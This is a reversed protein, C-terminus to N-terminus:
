LFPFSDVSPFATAELRRIKAQREQVVKRSRQQWGQAVSSSLPAKRGTHWGGRWSLGHHAATPRM